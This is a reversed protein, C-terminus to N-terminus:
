EKTSEAKSFDLLPELHELISKMLGTVSHPIGTAAYLSTAGPLSPLFREAPTNVNVGVGIVAWRLMDNHYMSEVLIGCAKKGDIFIDNPPKAFAKGCAEDLAAHSAQLTAKLVAEPPLKRQEPRILVSFCLSGPLANWIRGLSGRGETQRRAIVVSGHPAGQLALLACAQNTSGTEKLWEWHTKGLHTTKLSDAISGDAWPDAPSILRHGKRPTSEIICGENRLASIHKSVAARSMGLSESLAEGSLWGEALSLQNLIYERPSETRAM